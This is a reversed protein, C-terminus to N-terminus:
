QKLISSQECLPWAWIARDFVNIIPLRAQLSDM